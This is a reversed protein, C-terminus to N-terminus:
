INTRQSIIWFLSWLHLNASRPFNSPPTHKRQLMLINCNRSGVFVLVCLVCCIHVTQIMGTGCGVNFYIDEDQVQLEDVFKEFLNNWIIVGYTAKSRKLAHECLVDWGITFKKIGYYITYPSVNYPGHLKMKLPTIKIKLAKDAIKWVWKISTKWHHYLSHFPEKWMFIEIKNLDIIYSM